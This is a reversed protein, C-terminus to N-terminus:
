LMTEFHRKLIFMALRLAEKDTIWVQKPEHIKDKVKIEIGDGNDRVEAPADLYEKEKTLYEWDEEM